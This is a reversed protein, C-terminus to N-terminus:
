WTKPPIGLTIRSAALLARGSSRFFRNLLIVVREAQRSTDEFLETASYPMNVLSERRYCPSSDLRFWEPFEEGDAEQTRLNGM